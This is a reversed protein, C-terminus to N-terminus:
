WLSPFSALPPQPPEPRSLRTEADWPLLFTPIGEATGGVAYMPLFFALGEETLYYDRPNFSRRLARRWDERWRSQGARERREMEDAARRLLLKRWNTRRRFFRSLPVPCGECLDWTDGRRTLFIENTVERSLTWLSWLGNENYTVQYTLEASFCRLPASAALAAEHEARAQPLLFSECYRLFSRSQLQYFRRIRRSVTDEGQPQPVEVSAELVPISETTWERQAAFPETHLETLCARM